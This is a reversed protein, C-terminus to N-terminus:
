DTWGVGGQMRTDRKRKKNNVRIQRMREQRRSSTRNVRRSIGCSRRRRRSSFLTIVAAFPVSRATHSTKSAKVRWTKHVDAIRERRENAKKSEKGRTEEIGRFTNRKEIPDRRKIERQGTNKERCIGRM